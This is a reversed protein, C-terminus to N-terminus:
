NDNNVNKPKYDCQHSKTDPITDLERVLEKM